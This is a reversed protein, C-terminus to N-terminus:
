TFSKHWEYFCVFCLILMKCDFQHYISIKNFAEVKLILDIEILMFNYFIWKKGSICPYQWQPRQCHPQRAYQRPVNSERQPQVSKYESRPEWPPSCILTPPKVLWNSRCGDRVGNDAATQPQSCSYSNEMPSSWYNSCTTSLQGWM